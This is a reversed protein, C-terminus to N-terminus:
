TESPVHDLDPGRWTLTVWITASAPRWVGPVALAPRVVVDLWGRGGPALDSSLVCGDLESLQPSSCNVLLLLWRCEVYDM